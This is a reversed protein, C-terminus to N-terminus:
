RRWCGKEAKEEAKRNKLSRAAMHKVQPPPTPPPTAKLTQFTHTHTTPFNVDIAGSLHSRRPPGSDPGM